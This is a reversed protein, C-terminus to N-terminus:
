KLGDMEIKNMEKMMNMLNQAGGMQQLMRPDMAKNLQQMVNNPNRQMQKAMQAEGGKMLGSKGMKNVVREFQKHCKLLMQVEFPHTGSGRAIRYLRSPAKELDIKGDLEDDTMSDMMYMFKKLRNSSGSPDQDSNDGFMQPMGPIMSMVKNLPGLKMVNEFQEYMDRLTFIGKSLKEALEPKDTGVTDKIQAVLGRMDGMGLLRSVFSSANFQELDDFHEGSGLFIIPAGTAAVASLAGGGRAHGDLKTVIVSGIEVAEHFAAAQDGVSQGQTADLVFIVSQPQIAARIEQMEDFLASEQRHRGSTDVIIIEYKEKKFQTVGDYAIKIPDAEAFNGYFPIRLKLANQRLQDLAGARFTDACVMACKWGKRKYYHAVKAITTTKGAGQLGVFMIVNSENKKPEYPIAEPELLRTLEEVVARQIRKRRNTGAAEEELNLRTKINKRLEGVLQVKVDAELLARAIDALMRDLVEESVVTVSQMKQLASTLKSGLEALVM